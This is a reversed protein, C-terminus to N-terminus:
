AGPAWFKWWPRRSPSETVRRAVTDTFDVGKLYSSLTAAADAARTVPRELQPDYVRFGGVAELVDVCRWIESWVATARAADHWYPVTLSASDDFLTLQIGNTQVESGNNLELHRFRARAEEETLGEQAAIAPFDFDALSLAPDATILAEALAHKRREKTADIPGLNIGNEEAALSAEAAAVIDSESEARIFHLDYSM